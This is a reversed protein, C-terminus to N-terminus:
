LVVYQQNVWVSFALSFNLAACGLASVSLFASSSFRFAFLSHSFTCGLLTKYRCLFESRLSLHRPGLAVYLLVGHHTYLYTHDTAVPRSLLGPKLNSPWQDNLAGLQVFGTGIDIFIPSSSTACVFSM